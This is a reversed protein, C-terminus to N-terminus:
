KFIVTSFSKSVRLCGHGWHIPNQKSFEYQMEHEWHQLQNWWFHALNDFRAKEIKLSFESEFRILLACKLHLNQEFNDCQEKQLSSIIGLQEFSERYQTVQLSRM